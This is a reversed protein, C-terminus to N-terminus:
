ARRGTRRRRSDPRGPDPRGAPHATGRGRPIGAATASRRASRGVVHERAVFRDVPQEGADPRAQRQRGVVALVVEPELRLPHEALLGRGSAADDESAGCRHDQAAVRPRQVHAEVARDVPPERPRHREVPDVQLLGLPPELLVVGRALAVDPM